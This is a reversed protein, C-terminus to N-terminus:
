PAVVMEVAVLDLKDGRLTVIFAGESTRLRTAYCGRGPHAELPPQHGADALARGAMWATWASSSWLAKVPRDLYGDLAHRLLKQETVVRGEM